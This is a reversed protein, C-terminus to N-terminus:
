CPRGRREEREEKDDERRPLETFPLPPENSKAQELLDEWSMPSDAQRSSRVCRRIERITSNMVEAALEKQEPTLQELTEPNVYAELAEVQDELPLGDRKDFCHMHMSFLALDIAGQPAYVPTLERALMLEFLPGDLGEDRLQAALELIAQRRLIANEDDTGIWNFLELRNKFFAMGLLSLAETKTVQKQAYQMALRCLYGHCLAPRRLNEDNYIACSVARLPRGRLYMCPFRMRVKGEENTNEIDTFVSLTDPTSAARAEEPMCRADLIVCCLGCHVCLESTSRLELDM